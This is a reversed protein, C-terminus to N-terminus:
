YGPIQKPFYDENEGERYVDITACHFAGGFPGVEWFPVPIVEFGLKDFQDQFSLDRLDDRIDLLIDEVEEFPNEEGSALVPHPMAVTLIMGLAVLFALLKKM